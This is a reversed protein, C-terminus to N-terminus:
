PPPMREESSALFKQEERGFFYAVSLDTNFICLTGANKWTPATGKSGVNLASNLALNKNDHSWSFLCNETTGDHTKFEFSFLLQM